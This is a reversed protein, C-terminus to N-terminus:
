TAEGCQINSLCLEAAFNGIFAADIDKPEVQTAIISEQYAERMLATIHKNERAWNRAFDTQYGGLIYVRTEKM